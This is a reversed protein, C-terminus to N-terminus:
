AGAPRAVFVERRWPDRRPDPRTFGARAFAERWVNRSFLGMRHRDQFVQVTGDVGRAMIAFDLDYTTAGAVPKQSWAIYRLGHGSGDSADHGGTAVGPEYTEAMHDPLVILAGDAKLHTRATTLAAVLDSETTMYMIADHIIVADFTKGLRVSRMDGEVHEAERNLRRSVDLMAQSPDVLTMRAHRTLHSAVNGGGWGLELVHAPSKGLAGSLANWIWGAEEACDEPHSFLPWWAALGTYLRPLPTM